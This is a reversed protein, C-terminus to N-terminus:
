ARRGAAPIGRERPDALGARTEQRQKQDGGDDARSQGALVM